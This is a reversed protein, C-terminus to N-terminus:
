FEPKPVVIKKDVEKLIRTESHTIKEDVTNIINQQSKEFMKELLQIDKQDLM